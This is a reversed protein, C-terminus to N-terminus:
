GLYILYYCFVITVTTILGSLIIAQKKTRYLKNMVLLAYSLTASIGLSNLIFSTAQQSIGVSTMMPTFIINILFTSLFFFIASKYSLRGKINNLEM